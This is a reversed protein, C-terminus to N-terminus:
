STWAVGVYYTMGAVTTRSGRFRVEALSGDRRRVETLGEEQAGDAVNRYARFAQRPSAALDGIRRELLEERTYGLLTCAYTNVAAYRGTEDFVFVAVPMHEIAEGLLAIQILPESRAAAASAM